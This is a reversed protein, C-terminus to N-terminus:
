ENNVESVEGTLTNVTVEASQEADVNIYEVPQTDDDSHENFVATMGDSVEAGRVFESRIPAYKLVKKIVTKKCMEEPDSQWPGNSFTKSKSKGFALCEEYSMVEFGYGGDKLKYIGYVWMPRGKEGMTPKHKLKEELGYEFEFEDNEYVIHASISKFEGSRYCLDIMGKYGLQFQCEKQKTRGNYYPILYAQGLPTNPELGLQAATFMAGMFTAPSCESLGPTKVLATTAMRSFREKTLVSPLAKAIEGEYLKIYGKLTTPATNKKQMQGSSAAIAGKTNTTTAM